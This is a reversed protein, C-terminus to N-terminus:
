HWMHDVKATDDVLVGDDDMLRLGSKGKVSRCLQRVTKHFNHLDHSDARGQVQECLGQLWVKRDSKILRKKVASLSKIASVCGAIADSEEAPFFKEGDHHVIAEALQSLAASDGRHLASLLKRYKNLLEMCSWTRPSIWPKRPTRSPKTAAIRTRLEEMLHSVYQAPPSSGDWAAPPHNQMEQVFQDYHEDSIFTCKKPQVTPKIVVGCELTMVVVRHDSTTQLDLLGWPELHLETVLPASASCACLFDIQQLQGSPHKWTYGQEPGIYTNMARFGLKDLSEIVPQRHAALYRCSSAALPGAFEGPVGRLKANLDVCILTKGHNHVARVARLLDEGFERHAEDTDEETPAHADLIHYLMGNAKISVRLVRQSCRQHEHLSLGPRDRIMVLLGGRSAEAPVTCLQYGEISSLCFSDRFRSEQVCLVDIEALAIKRAVFLLKGAELLSRANFTAVRLAFSKERKNRGTRHRTCQGSVQSRVTQLLGCPRSAFLPLSRLSTMWDVRSAFWALLAFVFTPHAGASLCHLTFDTCASAGLQLLTEFAPFWNMVSCPSEMMCIGSAVPATLSTTGAVEAFETM